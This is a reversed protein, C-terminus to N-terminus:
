LFVQVMELRTFPSSEHLPIWKFFKHDKAAISIQLSQMTYFDFRWMLKNQRSFLTVLVGLCRSNVEINAQKHKLLDKIILVM